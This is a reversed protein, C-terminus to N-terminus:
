HILSCDDLYNLLSGCIKLINYEFNQKAGPEVITVGGMLCIYYNWSVRM